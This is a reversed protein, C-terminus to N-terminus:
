LSRLRSSRGLCAWLPFVIANDGVDQAMRAAQQVREEPIPCFLEPLKMEGTAEDEIRSLLQRAIRFSSPVVGGAAGSHVGESLIDVRLDGVIIGRLATTLWFQEYNGCGSDLCIVLSPTGIRDKLLDVYHPLDRSGSEECAEIIIVCRAHVGGQVQLAKIATVASFISYGDDAGGRGYLKGDKIVPTWPGGLEPNWTEKMPPQKDLHGYLLVTENCKSPDSAEVTMFILPTRGPETVVEIQSGAVNQAKAWNVLLEVAKEQYGNTAWEPDFLPSQNPIRIYDELTSIVSEAWKNEVFEYVKSTDYNAM